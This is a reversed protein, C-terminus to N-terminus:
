SKSSSLATLTFGAPKAAFLDNKKGKPTPLQKQIIQTQEEREELEEDDIQSATSMNDEVDDRQKLQEVFPFQHEFRATLRQSRLECCTHGCNGLRCTGNNGCSKCASGGFVM